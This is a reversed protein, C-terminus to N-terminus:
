ATQMYQSQFTRARIQVVHTEETYHKYPGIVNEYSNWLSEM